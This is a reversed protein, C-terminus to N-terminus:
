RRLLMGVEERGRGKQTQTLAHKINLLSYLAASVSCCCAVVARSTFLGFPSAASNKSRVFGVDVYCVEASSVGVSFARTEEERTDAVTPGPGQQHQQWPFMTRLLSGRRTFDSYYTHPQATKSGGLRSYLRLCACHVSLDPVNIMKSGSMVCMSKKKKKGM